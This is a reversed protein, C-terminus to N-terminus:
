WKWLLWYFHIEKIIEPEFVGRKVISLDFSRWWRLDNLSLINIVCSKEFVVIEFLTWFEHRLIVNFSILIWAKCWLCMYIEEFDLFKLKLCLIDNKEYLEVELIDFIDYDWSLWYLIYTWAEFDYYFMYFNMIEYFFTNKPM